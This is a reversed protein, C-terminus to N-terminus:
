KRQNCNLVSELVEVLKMVDEHRRVAVRYYGKSLGPYNSCDRILVNRKVCEEFLNGPGKFFIYNAQSPYVKVGLSELKWKLYAAESFVLLRGKIVYETEKLAAIGAAQAMTSVNWPQTALEMRSLTEQDSCMGYGLRVGAMAYRKTFAKLIFLNRNEELIGKLTYADPEKVFDLFCEDVVMFIGLDKCRKLVKELFVREMLIGTPNNPNCLFIMDLERSLAEPFNEPVGFEEEEKLYFHTVECGVSELAQEYEAFTPALVLAKQPQRARCLSFILEAAGNGCILNKEDVGEYEAIATKLSGCGVQPYDSIHELSEVIAQKVSEPTGLPNCNASFDLCDKYKYVDGGHIHKTM